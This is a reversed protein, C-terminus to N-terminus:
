RSIPTTQTPLRRCNKTHTYETPRAGSLSEPIVTRYGENPRIANGCPACIM